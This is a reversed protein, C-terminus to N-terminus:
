GGDGDLDGFAAHLSGFNGLLYQAPFPQPYL